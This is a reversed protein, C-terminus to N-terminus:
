LVVSLIGIREFLGIILSHEMIGGAFSSSLLIAAAYVAICVVLVILFGRLAGFIAGGANDFKGIVPLKRTMQIFFVAVLLAVATVLAIVAYSILHLTLSAIEYSIEEVSKSFTHSEGYAELKRSFHEAVAPPLKMEEVIDACSLRDPKEARNEYLAEIKTSAARALSNDLGSKVLAENVYPSLFQAVLVAIVVAALSFVTMLLGKKYGIFISLAFVAVMIIDFLYDM